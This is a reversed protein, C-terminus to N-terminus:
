LLTLRCVLSGRTVEASLQYFVVRWLLLLRRRYMDM